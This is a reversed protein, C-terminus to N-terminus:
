LGLANKLDLVAETSRGAPTNIVGPVVLERLFKTKKVNQLMGNKELAMGILMSELYDIDKYGNVGSKSFKGTTPTLRAILFLHPMGNHDNLTENYYMLKTAQFCEKQFSSKETKGVYWAKINEGNKLAFVYCGCARSLGQEQQEVRAWFAKDFVGWGNREKRYIEFGGYVAFRM